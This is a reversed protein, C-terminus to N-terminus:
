NPFPSFSLINIKNLMNLWIYTRLPITSDNYIIKGDDAIFYDDISTIYIKENTIIKIM